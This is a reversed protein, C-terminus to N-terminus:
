NTLLNSSSLNPGSTTSRSLFNIIGKPKESRTPRVSQLTQPLIVCVLLFLKVRVIRMQSAATIRVSKSQPRSTLGTATLLSPLVAVNSISVCCRNTGKLDQKILFPLRCRATPGSLRRIM